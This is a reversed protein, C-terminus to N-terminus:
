KISFSFSGKMAHGDKALARWEVTYDGPPLQPTPLEHKASFSKSASLDLNTNQGESSVIAAKTLRVADKFAIEITAPAATLTAGNAPATTKVPSHAVAAASMGLLLILATFFNKM